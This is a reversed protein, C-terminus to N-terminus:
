LGLLFLRSLEKGIYFPSVTNIHSLGNKTSFFGLFNAGYCFDREQGGYENISCITTSNKDKKLIM